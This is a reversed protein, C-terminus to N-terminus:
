NVAIHPPRTSTGSTTNFQHELAEHIEEYIVGKPVGHLLDTTRGELTTIFYTSKEQRMWCNREGVTEFLPQFVVWATTQDLKPPMVAGVGTVIGRGCESGAEVEKL